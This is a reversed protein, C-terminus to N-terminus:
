LHALCFSTIYKFFDTPRYTKDTFFNLDNNLINYFKFNTHQPAKQQLM